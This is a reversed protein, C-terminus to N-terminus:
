TKGHSGFVTDFHSNLLLAPRQDEGPKLKPEIYLVINTLNTYSSAIEVGAFNAQLSGSVEERDVIARLNRHQNALSSIAEAQNQVYNAAM